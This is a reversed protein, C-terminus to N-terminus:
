IADMAIVRNQEDLSVKIDESTSPYSVDVYAVERDQWDAPLSALFAAFEKLTM